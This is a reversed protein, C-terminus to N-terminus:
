SKISTNRMLKLTRHYDSDISSVTKAFKDYITSYNDDQQVIRKLRAINAVQEIVEKELTSNTRAKEAQAMLPTLLTRYLQGLRNINYKLLEAETKTSDLRMIAQNLYYRINVEPDEYDGYYSYDIESFYSM